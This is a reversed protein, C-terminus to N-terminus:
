NYHMQYKNQIENVEHKVLPKVNDPLQKIETAIM